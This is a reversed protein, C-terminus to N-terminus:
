RGYGTPAKQPPPALDYGQGQGVTPPKSYSDHQLPASGYNQGPAFQQSQHGIGPQQQGYGSSFGPQQQQQQHSGGYSSGGGHNHGFSIGSGSNYGYSNPQRQPVPKYQQQQQGYSSPGPGFNQIVPTPSNYGPGGTLPKSQYGPGMQKYPEKIPAGGYVPQKYPEPAANYGGNFPEEKIPSIQGGYNPLTEIQQNSYSPGPVPM